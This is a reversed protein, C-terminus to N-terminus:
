AFVQFKVRLYEDVSKFLHGSISVDKGILVYLLIEPVDDDTYGAIQAQLVVNSSFRHITEIAESSWEEAGNIPRVNSLVCEIAQFPLNMFEAHIQRLESAHVNSYGGFDLYKVLCMSDRQNHSVVQVRYWNNQICYACVANDIIEPLVPAKTMSYWANMQQQTVALKPYSPHLPQLLFLRNGNIVSVSVDNNIGEILKLQLSAMNLSPVVHNDPTIFIREYTCPIQGRKPEPISNRIMKLAADIESQTGEVTCIRQKHVPNNKKHIIVNAGTKDKMRALNKGRFGVVWGVCWNPLFFDYTIIAAGVSQPPSSGQGSDGSHMSCISLSPSAIQPQQNSPKAAGAQDENEKIADTVEADDDQMMVCGNDNSNDNSNVNVVNHNNNDNNSAPDEDSETHTYKRERFSSEPSIKAEMTGKVIVPETSTTQNQSNIKNFVRARYPPSDAPTPTDDLDSDIDAEEIYRLNRIDSEQPKLKLIECDIEQETVRKPPSRPNPAIDIPASKCLSSSSSSASGASGPSQSRNNNVGEKSNSLNINLKLQQQQQQQPTGIPLSESPHSSSLASSYAHQDSSVIEQNDGLLKCSEEVVKQQQKDGGGTDCDVRGNRKRRYWVYGIIIVLSPLITYYIPRKAIM